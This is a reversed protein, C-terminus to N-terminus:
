LPNVSPTVPQWMHQASLCQQILWRLTFVINYFTLLSQLFYSNTEALALDERLLTILLLSTVIFPTAQSLFAEIEYYTFPLYNQPFFPCRQKHCQLV